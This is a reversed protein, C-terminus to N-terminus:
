FSITATVTDSYDGPSPTSQVPVRGYLTIPQASGTGTGSVMSTGSLGDGWIAGDLVASIEYSITEGTAARRMRRAAVNGSVTGGNLAIRYANNNTCQVSLSATTRIASSLLSRNGFALNGASILCNNVVTAQVQFTFTASSGTTCAPQVLNYFAYSISAAGTFSSSYVTDADSVTSVGALAATAIKGYVTFNRVISGGTLLPATGTVTIPTPTGALAPSGWISAAAYSNDRYLNYNLRLAGNGLARPNSGTSNSGLGANVCVVVNPFLLLFPPTPSTLTWTCTVVGSGNAFYDAGPVPSVSTFAIDSLTASCSDAHASGALGLGGLLFLAMGHGRRM